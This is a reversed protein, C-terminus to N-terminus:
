KENLLTILKDAHEELMGYEFNTKVLRSFLNGMGHDDDVIAFCRTSHAKLWARIEDGRPRGSLEPTISLLNGTYGARKLLVDLLILTHGLRWTSSVVVECNTEAVVRNLRAVHEPSIGIVGSVIAIGSPTIIEPTSSCNLVGDFDLFLVKDIM